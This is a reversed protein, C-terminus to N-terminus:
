APQGESAESPHVWRGNHHVAAVARYAVKSDVRNLEEVLAAAEPNSRIPHASPYWTSSARGRFEFAFHPARETKEPVVDVFFAALRPAMGLEMAIHHELRAGRSHQWGDLMAVTDCTVLVAIDKRMCAEWAMTHDPNIEAPNVVDHGLARLRAAEAHFAPFNLNPLGTMPGALYIKM